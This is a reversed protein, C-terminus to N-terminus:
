VELKLLSGLKINIGDKMDVTRKLPLSAAELQLLVEKNIFDPKGLEMWKEYASGSCPLIEELSAESFAELGNLAVRIEEPQEVDPEKCYYLLVIVKDGDKTALAGFGEVKASFDIGIKEGKLENLFRFAHFSSKKIDNVNILGYGGHFARFHFDGEEYIDSINWYLSGACVASLEDMTKAIYAANNCEDHNFAYPGASSNWEGCILPISAGLKKDIKMRAESFLKKMINSNLLAVDGVASDLFALDSPYAHTSIFDCPVSNVAVFELFEDIWATKSTAPGGVRLEPAIKKISRASIEYLKFYEERSGSWFSIDPENWVEFYWQSIEEIGYEGLLFEILSSILKGWEEWDKPPATRFGYYCIAKDNSAFAGPMASLEMFPKLGIALLNDFAKKLKEFNFSGDERVVGM